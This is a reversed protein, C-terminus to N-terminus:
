LRNFLKGLDGRSGNARVRKRAPIDETEYDYWRGM